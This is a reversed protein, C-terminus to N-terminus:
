VADSQRTPKIDEAKRELSNPVYLDLSKVLENCYEPSCFEVVERPYYENIKNIKESIEAGGLSDLYFLLLEQLKHLYGGKMFKKRLETNLLLLVLRDIVALLISPKTDKTLFAVLCYDNTTLPIIGKLFRDCKLKLESDKTTLFLSYIINIFGKEAINDATGETHKGMHTLCWVASSQIEADSNALYKFVSDLINYAFLGDPFSANVASICGVTILCTSIYKLPMEDLYPLIFPEIFGVFYNASEKGHKACTLCLNMALCRLESDGSVLYSKLVRMCTQSSLVSISLSMNHKAIQSFAEFAIKKSKSDFESISWLRDCFEDKVIEESASMSLGSITSIFSCIYRPRSSHKLQNLLLKYDLNNCTIELLDSSSKCITTLLNYILDSLKEIRSLELLFLVVDGSLFSCCAPHKTASNLASIASKKVNINESKLLAVFDIISNTRIIENINENAIAELLQLSVVQIQFSFHQNENYARLISLIHPLCKTDVTKSEKLSNLFIMSERQFRELATSRDAM